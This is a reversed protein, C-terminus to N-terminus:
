AALLGVSVGVIVVLVIVLVWIALAVISCVLGATAMGSKGQKKSVAALIIGVIALVWSAYCVYPVCTLLISLIGCVMSAIAM